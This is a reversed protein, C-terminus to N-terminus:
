NLNTLVYTGNKIKRETERKDERLFQNRYKGTTPSYDWKKEDLYTIGDEYNKFVIVSDYSQFYRGEDTKIIFQNAVERGSKSSKMNRVKVKLQM